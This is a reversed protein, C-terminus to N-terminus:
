TFIYFTHIYPFNLRVQKPELLSPLPPPWREDEPSTREESHISKETQLYSM